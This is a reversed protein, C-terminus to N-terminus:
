LSHREKAVARPRQRQRALASLLVVGGTVNAEAFTPPLTGRRDTVLGFLDHAHAQTTVAFGPTLVLLTGLPNVQAVGM